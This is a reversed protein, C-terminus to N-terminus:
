GKKGEEGVEKGERCRGGGRSVKEVLHGEMKWSEKVLHTVYSMYSGESVGLTGLGNRIVFTMMCYGVEEDSWLLVKKKYRLVNSGDDVRGSLVQPLQLQLRLLQNSTSSSSTSTGNDGGGSSGTEATAATTATTEGAAAAAAAAAAAEAEAAEALATMFSRLDITSSGQATLASETSQGGTLMQGDVAMPDDKEAGQQQSKHQILQQLQELSCNNIVARSYLCAGGPLQLSAQSNLKLQLTTLQSM